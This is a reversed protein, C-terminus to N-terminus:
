KDMNPNFNFWTLLLEGQQLGRCVVYFIWNMNIFAVATPEFLFIDANTCSIVEQRVPAEKSVHNLKLGLM